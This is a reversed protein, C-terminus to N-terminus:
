ERSLWLPPCTHSHCLLVGLRLGVAIQITSNDMRLGIYLPYMCCSICKAKKRVRTHLAALLRAHSSPRDANALLGQAVLQMKPLNWAKRSFLFCSTRIPSHKEKSLAAEVDPISANHESYLSAPLLTDSDGAASALFASPALQASRIGLGGLKIPLQAQTWAPDNIGLSINLTSSLISRLLDDFNVLKESLFCPSTHLINPLKPIAFSHHLLLLADHADLHCLREGLKKWFFFFFFFMKACIAASISAIIPVTLHVCLTM